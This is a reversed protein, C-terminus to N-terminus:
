FIVALVHLACGSTTGSTTRRFWSGQCTQICCDAGTSGSSIPHMGKVHYFLHSTHLEYWIFDAARRHCHSSWIHLNSAGHLKSTFFTRSPLASHVGQWPFKEVRKLEFSFFWITPSLPLIHDNYRVLSSRKQCKKVKGRLTTWRESPVHHIKISKEGRAETLKM